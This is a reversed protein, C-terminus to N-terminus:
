TVPALARLRADLIHTSLAMMFGWESRMQEFSSEFRGALLKRRLAECAEYDFIGVAEFREPSWHRSLAEDDLIGRIWELIPTYLARKHRARVHRPLRKAHVAKLIHKEDLGRLRDDPALALMAEVVDEDLYPFRLELGHAASMRDGMHLVWSPLRVAVEFYLNRDMEDGGQAESVEERLFRAIRQNYEPVSSAVGPALVEEPLMEWMAASEPHFGWTERDRARRAPAHRQFYFRLAALDVEAWPLLARLFPERLAAFEVLGSLHFRELRERIRMARFADYGALFEDPGEGSLVVRCGEGAVAAGLKKLALDSTWWQPMEASLVYDEYEALGFPGVAIKRSRLGLDRAVRDIEPEEDSSTGPFTMSWTALRDGVTRMAESAIGTSDIGGSMYCAVPVDAALQSSVARRFREDLDAVRDEFRPLTPSGFRPRWYRRPAVEGPPLELRLWSGPTLARVGQLATRDGLTHNFRFVQHIAEPDLAVEHVGSAAIGKLESAVLVCDPKVAFHLPKIGIRDRALLVDGAAPRLFVFAFMGRIRELAGVDWACLAHYLVEADGETDFAFGERALEDRIERHNYIEGNYALLETRGRARFPQDSRPHLDVVRLRNHGLAFGGEVLTRTHDPGRHAQAAAMRTVVAHLDTARPDQHWVFSIGCM